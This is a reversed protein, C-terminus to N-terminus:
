YRRAELFDSRYDVNTISVGKGPNSKTNKSGGSSHIMQGNGIYIGIHSADNNNKGFFILDGPQMDAKSVSTGYSRYGQATTRGVKYGSDKLANYVFGSCDMGGEDMSEGGWVYPTGLYKQAADAITNGTEVRQVPGGSATYTGGTSPTVTNQQTVTPSLGTAQQIYSKAKQSINPNDLLRQYNLHPNLIEGNNNLFPNLTNTLNNGNTGFVNNAKQQLAASKQQEAAKEQEETHFINGVIDKLKKLM